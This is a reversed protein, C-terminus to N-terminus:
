AIQLIHESSAETKMRSSQPQECDFNMIESSSECITNQNIFHECSSTEVKQKSKSIRQKCPAAPARFVLCLLMNTLNEGSTLVIFYSLFSLCIESLKSIIM